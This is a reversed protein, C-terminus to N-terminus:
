YFQISVLDVIVNKYTLQEWIFGFGFYHLLSSTFFFSQVLFLQIFNYMANGSLVCFPTAKVLSEFINISSCYLKARDM